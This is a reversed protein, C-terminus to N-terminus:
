PCPVERFAYVRDDVPRFGGGNRTDQGQLLWDPSLYTQYALCISRGDRESRTYEARAAWRGDAQLLETIGGSIRIRWQLPPGERVALRVPGAQPPLTVAETLVHGGALVTGAEFFLPPAREAAPSGAVPFALGALLLPLASRMM